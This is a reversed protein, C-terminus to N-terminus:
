PKTRARYQTQVVDLCHQLLLPDGLLGLLTGLRHAVVGAVNRNDIAEDQLAAVVQRDVGDSLTLLRVLGPGLRPRFQMLKGMM